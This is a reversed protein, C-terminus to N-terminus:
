KALLIGLKALTEAVTKSPLICIFDANRARWDLSTAQDAMIVGAAPHGAPILVEFPYGEFPPVPTWSM